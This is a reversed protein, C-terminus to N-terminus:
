NSNLSGFIKKSSSWFKFHFRPKIKLVVEQADVRALFMPKTSIQVFDTWSTQFKRQDMCFHDYYLIYVCINKM